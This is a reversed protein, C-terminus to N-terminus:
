WIGVLEFRWVGLFAFLLALIWGAHTIWDIGATTTETDVDNGTANLIYVGPKGLHIGMRLAFAAMSWGSNPSPTKGSEHRLVGYPRADRAWSFDRWLRGGGDGISMRRLLPRDITITSQHDPMMTRQLTTQPHPLRAGFPYYFLWLGTIRAPIFNMMDDMRAAVKGWQEYKENRYGWMSDATNIFRYLYAGPLGLILFWFLPAIVSDSLNESISELASERVEIASLNTTDRSVIYALRKRGQDLDQQLAAEIEKVERVLMRFAFAPKLLIATLPIQGWIPLQWLGWTMGCAFGFVIVAGIGWTVGGLLRPLQDGRLKEAFKLYNGFWVVPHCWLPPEGVFWDLLLALLITM